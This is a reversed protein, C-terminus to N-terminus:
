ITDSDGELVHISATPDHLFALLSPDGKVPEIGFKRQLEESRAPVISYGAARLASAYPHRMGLWCEIAVAGEARACREVASILTRAVDNRQPATLIDVLHGRSGVMRLAAYGVTRTGELAVFTRFRGGGGSCYRWNLFEATRLPIFDFTPATEAWLTDIGSDFERVERVVVDSRSAPRWGALGRAQVALYGLTDPVRQRLSTSRANAAGVANLVHVFVCMPNAVAAVTEKGDSVHRVAAVQSFWWSLEEDYAEDGFRDLVTYIGRGRFDPHVAVFAGLRARRMTGRVMAPRCIELGGAAVRGDAEVIDIRGHFDQAEVLYWHIFSTTGDPIDYPPWGDFSREMVEIVGAVDAPDDRRLARAVPEQRPSSQTIESPLM